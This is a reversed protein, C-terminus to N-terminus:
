RRKYRCSHEIMSDWCGTRLCKSLVRACAHPCHKGHPCVQLCTKYRGSCTTASVPAASATFGVGLTGMFVVALSLKHVKRADARQLCINRQGFRSPSGRGRPSRREGTRPMKELRVERAGLLPQMPFGSTPPDNVDVSRRCQSGCSRAINQPITSASRACPMCGNRAAAAATHSCPAAAASNPGPRM